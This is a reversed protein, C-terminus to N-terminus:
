QFVRMREDNALRNIRDMRTRLVGDVKTRHHTTVACLDIIEAYFEDPIAPPGYKRGEGIDDYRALLCYILGSVMAAIWVLGFFFKSPALWMFPATLVLLIACANMVLVRARELKAPLRNISKGYLM